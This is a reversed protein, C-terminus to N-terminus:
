VEINGSLGGDEAVVLVQEQVPHIVGREKGGGPNQYKGVQFQMLLRKRRGLYCGSTIKGVSRPGERLLRKYGHREQGLICRGGNGKNWRWGHKGNQRPLGILGKRRKMEEEQRMLRRKSHQLFIARFRGEQRM